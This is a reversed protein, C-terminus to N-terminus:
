YQQPPNARLSAEESELNRIQRDLSAIESRLDKRKYYDQETQLENEKRQIERRTNRIDSGVQYLKHGYNYQVLFAPEMDPPCSQANYRSGRMGVTLGNNPQCFLRIGQEYGQYYANSDPTVGFEACAHRHDAIRNRSAGRLGDEHGIDHWNATLCEDKNMSACGSLMVGLGIAALIIRSRM